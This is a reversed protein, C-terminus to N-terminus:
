LVPSLLSAARVAFRYPFSRTRFAGAEVEVSSALDRELMAEIARGFGSDLVVANIEFNLRFSRSDFNATGVTAVDDDVLMVKQHMFGQQYRFFRIGVGDLEQLYWVSALHVVISDAKQSLLVRVDVGRMAALRLAAMNASDPVFYPTALWVRERAANILEVSAHSMTELEDSPGSRLALVRCSGEPAPRGAWDLEPIERVAWYWDTLWTAQAQLAVPGELRLHTDRWPAMRPDRGVYEDGVNLGGIWAVRGDVVVIKRHNRFNLQLLNGRGRTTDFSSVRVGARRLSDLYGSSLGASGIEDYVLHVAVGAQAREVLADRFRRGLEDDRVTYFEVLVYRQAAEIGALMSRFAHDGDILLEAANDGVFPWRGLAEVARTWGPVDLARFGAIAEGAEASLREIQEANERRAEAEGEFSRRGFVWYLPLAIVPLAVLSVSWAIAGQPTRTAMIAHIASLVGLAEAGAVIWGWMSFLEAGTV